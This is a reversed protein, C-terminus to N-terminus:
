GGRRSSVLASRPFDADPSTASEGSGALRASGTSRGASALKRARPRARPKGRLLVQAWGPARDLVPMAAIALAFCVVPTAIFYAAYLPHDVGGLVRRVVEWGVFTVLTHSLYALYAAPECMRLFGFVNCRAIRSAADLMCLTAASRFALRWVDPPVVAEVRDMLGAWFLGTVGLLVGYAAMAVPTPPRLHGVHKQLLVGVLVFSLISNRVVLEGYMDAQWAAVSLALAVLVGRSGLGLALRAILSCVFLDRLFSLTMNMPQGYLFLLHQLVADVTSGGFFLDHTASPQGLLVAPAVLLAQLALNWCLMPLCLVKFRKWVFSGLSSTGFGLAILFGSIVSLTPVSARGFVEVFVTGIWHMADGRHWTLTDFYPRVHVSMMFFICLVRCVVIQRSTADDLTRRKESPQTERM